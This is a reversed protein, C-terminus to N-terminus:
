VSMTADTIIPPARSTPHPASITISLSKATMPQHFSFSPGARRMSPDGRRDRKVGAGM